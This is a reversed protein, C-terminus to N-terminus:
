HYITASSADQLRIEQYLSRDRDNSGNRHRWCPLNCARCVRNQFMRYLIKWFIVNILIHKGIPRRLNLYVIISYRIIRAMFTDVRQRQHCSETHILPHNLNNVRAMRIIVDLRSTVLRWISLHSTWSLTSPFRKSHAKRSTVTSCLTSKTYIPSAPLFYLHASEPLNFAKDFFVYM